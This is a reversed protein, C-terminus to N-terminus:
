QWKLMWKFATCYLKPSAWTNKLAGTCRTKRRVCQRLQTLNQRICFTSVPVPSDATCHFPCVMKWACENKEGTAFSKRTALPPRNTICTFVVVFLQIFDHKPFYRSLM